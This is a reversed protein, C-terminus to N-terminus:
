YTISMLLTNLKNLIAHFTYTWLIYAFTQNLKYTSDNQM